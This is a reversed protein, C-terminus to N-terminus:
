CWGDVLRWDGNPQRAYLQGKGCGIGEGTGKLCETCMNSWIQDGKHRGDVYFSRYNLNCSCIDCESVQDSYTPERANVLRINEDTSNLKYLESMSMREQAPNCSDLQVYVYM